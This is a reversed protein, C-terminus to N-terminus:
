QEDFGPRAFARSNPFVNETERRMRELQVLFDLIQDERDPLHKLLRSWAQLSRDMCILAVKASGDSDRPMDELMAPLPRVIGHVARIMKTSIVTHYWQVVELADNLDIAEEEPSTQPLDLFAKKELDKGKEVLSERVGEFWQFVDDRYKDAARMVPYSDVEQDIQAKEQEYEDMAEASLDIGKEEAMERLMQLMDVFMEAMGEWFEGNEVDKSAMAAEDDEGMAYVACRSTFTCRECWKDCYNHIGSIMDPDNALQKTKEMGSDKMKMKNGLQYYRFAHGM